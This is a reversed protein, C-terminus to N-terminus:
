RKKRKRVEGGGFINIFSADLGAALFRERAEKLLDIYELNKYAYQTSRMLEVDMSHVKKKLDEVERELREVEEAKLVTVYLHLGDLQRRKM